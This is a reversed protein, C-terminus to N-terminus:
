TSNFSTVDRWRHIRFIDSAANYIFFAQSCFLQSCFLQSCFLQSCFLQSCFLSDAFSIDRTLNVFLMDFRCGRGM